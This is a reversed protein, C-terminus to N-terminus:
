QLTETLKLIKDGGKEILLQLESVLEEPDNLLAVPDPIVYPM